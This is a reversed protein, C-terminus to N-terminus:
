GLGQVLSIPCDLLATCINTAAVAQQLILRRPNCHNAAALPAGDISPSVCYYQRSVAMLPILADTDCTASHM